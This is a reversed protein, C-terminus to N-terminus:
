IKALLGYNREVKLKSFYEKKWKDLILAKNKEKLTSIIQPKAQELTLVKEPQKELVEILHFGYPSELAGSVKGLPLTKVADALNSPLDLLSLWGLTGGWAAEPTISNKKALESFDAKKKLEEIIQSAKEKESVVIQRLKYKEGQAFKEQYAFYHKEIQQPLPEYPVQTINQISKEILINKKIKENWERESIRKEILLDSFDMHTYDNKIESIKTTLEEKALHINNKKAYQLMVLEEILENLVSDKLIKKEEPTKNDFHEDYERLRDKFDKISIIDSGIKVLVNNEPQSVCSSMFMLSFILFIM